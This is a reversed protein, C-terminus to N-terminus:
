SRTTDFRIAEPWVNLATGDQLAVLCGLPVFDTDWDYWGSPPGERTYDTHASQESCGAESRLAVM